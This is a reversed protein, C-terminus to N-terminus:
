VARSPVSQTGCDAVGSGLRDSRGLGKAARRRHHRLAGERRARRENVTRTTRCPRWTGMRETMSSFAAGEGTRDLVVIHQWSIGAMKLMREVNDM